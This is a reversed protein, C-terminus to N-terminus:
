VLLEEAPLAHRERYALLLALPMGFAVAFLAAVLLMPGQALWPWGLPAVLLFGVAWVALGFLLGVAAEGAFSELFRRSARAVFVGYLAGCLASLALHVASGAVLVGLMPTSQLAAAGILVSAAMRLPLLPPEGALSAAIVCVLGFVIGALVGMVTANQITYKPDSM